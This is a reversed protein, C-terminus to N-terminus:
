ENVVKFNYDKGITFAIKEIKKDKTIRMQSSYEPPIVAGKRPEEGISNFYKMALEGSTGSLKLTDNIKYQKNGYVTVAACTKEQMLQGINSFEIKRKENYETLDIVDETKFGDTDWQVPNHTHMIDWLFYRGYAACFLGIIMPRQKAGYCDCPKGYNEYNVSFLGYICNLFIKAQEYEATDKKFSEKVDFQSLIYNRLKDPLPKANYFYIMNDIYEISYDYDLQIIWMDLNTITHTKKNGFNLWDHHKPRLKRFTITAIWLKSKGALHCFMARSINEKVVYREYPFFQSVMIWPYFSKFDFCNLYRTEDIYKRDIGSLGGSKCDCLIKHSKETISDALYHFDGYLNLKNLDRRVFGIGTLPIKGVHGKFRLRESEAAKWTIILEDSDTINKRKAIDKLPMRYFEKSNRFILNDKTAYKVIFSRMTHKEVTDFYSEGTYVIMESLRYCWIVTRRSKNKAQLREFVETIYKYEKVNFGDYLRFCLAKEDYSIAFTKNLYKM